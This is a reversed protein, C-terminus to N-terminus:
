AHERAVADNLEVGLGPGDPVAISGNEFREPPEILDGRWAAEGWQMELIEFNPLGACLQASAATAVPGSPNHPSVAIGDLEAVAAIKRAELLGGCHKVDPMIVDVAQERCLPGFGEIGFLFEGGAMRQEIAREIAVTAAVDTPPVPEEYWALNQPELRRAVDVALDVDFFSHCDILIDVDSGVAERIAEVCAVGLDAASAVDAAPADLAPFGDFPAAKIATFGDEVAARANAAFGEPTRERTARNINAYAPLRDRLGGGTLLHVPADVAKGVLDWLGQEIASFATAEFIDGAAARERGAARYAEIAFPSRGRAAEFAENLAPLERRRGLSCEGLGSLGLNTHLHVFMWATRESVQVSTLEMEEIRLRRETAGSPQLGRAPSAILPLAAAAGGAAMAQRRTVPAAAARGRRM